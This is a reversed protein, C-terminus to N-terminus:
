KRWPKQYHSQLGSSAFAGKEIIKDGRPYRSRHSRFASFIREDRNKEINEPIIAKGRTVEM